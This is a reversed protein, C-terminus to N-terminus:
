GWGDAGRVHLLIKWAWGVIGLALPVLVYYIPSVRAVLLRYVPKGTVAIFLCAWVAVGAATALLTGAPQVYLSAALNGRVFWAFSTTMGCSPCPLGTTALFNCAPLGMEQAHTGLGTPSPTLRTAILLVVLCGGAIALAGARALPDLRQPSPCIAYIAPVNPTV